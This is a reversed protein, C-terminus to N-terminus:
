NWYPYLADSFGQVKFWFPRAGGLSIGGIFFIYGRIMWPKLVRFFVLKLAQDAIIFGCGLDGDLVLFACAGTM